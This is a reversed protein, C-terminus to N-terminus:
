KVVFFNSNLSKLLYKMNTLFMPKKPIKCSISSIINKTLIM